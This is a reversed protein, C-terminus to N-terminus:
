KKLLVAAGGEYEAFINNLFVNEADKIFLPTGRKIDRFIEIKNKHPTKEFCIVSNNLFINKLRGEFGCIVNNEYTKFICSNFSINEIGYEGDIHTEGFSTIIEIPRPAAAIINQFLIGHVTVANVSTKSWRSMIGVASRHAAEISVNSILCRRIEGGGVGVRIGYDNYSYLSCNTITVNECIGDSNLLRGKNARLTIADDGVDIICDSVAVRKCCDIDIGDNTWRTRDGKITLGSAFVEECGHFFLHWYPANKINVGNIHVNKCECFYMMQGPRESLYPYYDETKPILHKENLWYRGSGDITGAGEIVINEQQVAAILHAGTVRESAFVENQPCFADKNYHTRDTSGKLVAGPALHLGGNSKLYITGTIYVGKPIYVMGGSDVAKQIAATDLTKGDGAAGYDKVNKM